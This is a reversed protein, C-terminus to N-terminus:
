LMFYLAGIKKEKETEAIFLNRTHKFSNLDSNLLTVEARGVEWRFLGSISLINSIFELDGKPDIDKM